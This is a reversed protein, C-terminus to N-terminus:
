EHLIRYWYDYKTEFGLKSYLKLAKENEAEVQLYATTAGLSEGWIGLAVNVSAGIGRNRHVPDTYIGFLGMMRDEVVGMGIGVVNENIYVKALALPFRIRDIIELRTDLTFQDFGGMKGYAKIWDFDLEPIIEVEYSGQLRSIFTIDAIQLHTLMEKEFGRKELEEDLNHPESAETIKFTPPISRKRYFEIALEIAEELPLEHLSYCPLVSNTRWTIGDNARLMWGDLRENEKAPWARSAILEIRTIDDNNMTCEYLKM